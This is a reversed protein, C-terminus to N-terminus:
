QLVAFTGAGVRTMSALPGSQELRRALFSSVCHPPGAPPIGLQSCAGGPAPWSPPGRSSPAPGERRLRVPPTPPPSLVLYRPCLVLTPFPFSPSVSQLRNGSRGRPRCWGLCTWAAADAPQVSLHGRQQSTLVPLPVGLLGVGWLSLCPHQHDPPVRPPCVRNSVVAIGLTLPPSKLHHLHFEVFYQDVLLPPRLPEPCPM